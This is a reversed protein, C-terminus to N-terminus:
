SKAPPWATALKPAHDAFPHGDEPRQGPEKIFSVSILEDNQLDAETDEAWRGYALLVFAIHQENPDQIVQKAVTYEARGVTFIVDGDKLTRPRDPDSYLTM